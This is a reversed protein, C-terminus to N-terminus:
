KDLKLGKLAAFPNNFSEKPKSPRRDKSFSKSFDKKSKSFKRDGSFKGRPFSTGTLLALSIRKKEKDLGTVKVKVHSGPYLRRYHKGIWDKPLEKISILGKEAIGLDVLVGFDAVHQVVASAVFGEKLDEWSKLEPSFSVGRFIKRFDQYSDKCESLINSFKKKGVLEEWKRRRISLESMKQNFLKSVPIALERALDKVVQYNEPHIRSADMLNKGTRIYLFGAAQTFIDSTMGPVKLLDRRDQFPGKQKRYDEIAQSLEETIGSIYSLAKAPALNVDLGVQHTCFTAADSIAKSLAEQSLPLASFGLKAFDVKFFEQMPNQLFRAIFAAKDAGKSSSVEPAKEPSTTAQVKEEKSTESASVEETSIQEGEEASSVEEPPAAEPIEVQAKKEQSNEKRIQSAYVECAGKDYVIHIPIEVKSLGQLIRTFAEQAARSHANHAIAVAHVKMTKLTSEFLALTTAEVGEASLDVNTDSILKGTDDVLAIHYQTKEPYVGLVIKRGVGGLMLLGKLQSVSQDSIVREAFEKAHKHLVDVASPIVSVELAQKCVNLFFGQLKENKAPNIQDQFKELLKAQDISVTLKLFGSLWGRRITLYRFAERTRMLFATPIKQGVFRVYRSKEHFKKGKEIVLQGKENIEKKVLQYLEPDLSLRDVLIKQVGTIVESHTLFGAKPNLFEKAKEELTTTIVETGKGVAVIWDAFVELGAKRAQIAQPRRKGVFPRLLEKISEESMAKNIKEVLGSQAKLREGLKEMASEKAVKLAEHSASIAKLQLLDYISLNEIEDPRYSFIYYPSLGKSLLDQAKSLAAESIKPFQKKFFDVSSM